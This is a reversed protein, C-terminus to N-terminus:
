HGGAGARQEAAGPPRSAARLALLQRADDDREARLAADIGIKFVIDRQAHSGGVPAMAGALAALRSAAEGHRGEGYELLATAIPVTLSAALGAADGEGGAAFARLSELHRRAAPGRRAGVLAMMYHLDTFAMVHDGCRREALDALPQWRDGVDVGALDLRMLLSAANQVDLYFGSEDVRIERDYLALVEDNEGLAFAFLAAHWWLHAKFPNRDAWAEPPRELWALGEECRGTMEMAHAVAHIAWLDDGNRAVAERGREEARAYEGCEELGFAHMGLAFGYGPLEPDIADLAAASVDRLAAAEGRWFSMFHHLRLALLDQPAACLIARWCRCAEGIHGNRWHRLAELHRREREDGHAAAQRAAAIARDVKDAVAGTALQMLMYGRLCLGMPFCPDHDLAAKLHRGASLRYELLDGIAADYSEVAEAGAATIALGWHDTRM